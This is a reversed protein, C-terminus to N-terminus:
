ILGLSLLAMLEPQILHSVSFSKVARAIAPFMPPQALYGQFGSNALKTKEELCVDLRGCGM